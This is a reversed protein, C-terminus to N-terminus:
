RSPSSANKNSCKNTSNTSLPYELYTDLIPAGIKTFAPWLVTAVVAAGSVELASGWDEVGVELVQEAGVAGVFTTIFVGTARAALTRVYEIM